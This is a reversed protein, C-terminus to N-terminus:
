ECVFAPEPALRPPRKRRSPDILESFRRTGPTPQPFVAAAGPENLPRERERRKKRYVSTM